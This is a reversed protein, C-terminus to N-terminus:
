SPRVTPFVWAADSADYTARSRRSWRAGAPGAHLQLRHEVERFFRYGEALVQREEPQLLGAAELRELAAATDRVQLEPYDAGFLLQLVQATFEVDRITGRGEKVNQAAEGAAELKRVVASRMERVDALLSAGQLRRYVVPRVLSMFRQGLEPDGAVPRAKILAQREWTEAWRDYYTRFGRDFRVLAGGRGEPRLRVNVRFCRGEGTEQSLVSILSEAVRTAYRRQGEDHPDPSDMVFVLDIDSSYNLERAGLKGMAIVSFRVVASATPVRDVEERALALAGEVLAGALDSIERTIEALPGRRALDRWGIRLFKRRKVRRLADRRSEPRRALPDASAVAAPYDEPRRPAPPDLMLSYLGPDRAFAAGLVPESRLPHAPGGPLGRVESAAWRAARSPLSAAWRDLNLLAMEPDPADM